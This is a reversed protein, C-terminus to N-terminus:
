SSLSCSASLSLYSGDRASRQPPRHRAAPADSLQPGLQDPQVLHVRRGGSPHGVEFSLKLIGCLALADEGSVDLDLLGVEMTRISRGHESLTRTRGQSNACPHQGRDLAQLLGHLVQLLRVRGDARLQRRGFGVQLVGSQGAVLGDM